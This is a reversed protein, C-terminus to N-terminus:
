GRRREKGERTVTVAEPGGRWEGGRVVGLDREAVTSSRHAMARGPNPRRMMAEETSLSCGGQAGEMWILPDEEGRGGRSSYSVGFDVDSVPSWMLTTAVMPVGNHRVDEMVEDDVHWRPSDGGTFSQGICEGHRGLARAAVHAGCV